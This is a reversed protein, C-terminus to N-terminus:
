LLVSDMCLLLLLWKQLLIKTTTNLTTAPTMTTNSTTTKSHICISIHMYSRQRALLLTPSNLTTAASNQLVNATQLDVQLFICLACACVCLYVHYVCLCKTLSHCHTVHGASIRFILSIACTSLVQCICEM